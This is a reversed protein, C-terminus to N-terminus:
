TGPQSQWPRGISSCTSFFRPEFFCSLTWVPSACPTGRRIRRLENIDLFLFELPEANEAVPVVGVQGHVVLIFPNGGGLQGLEGIVAPEVPASLRHVPAGGANGGQGLGFNLVGIVGRRRDEDLEAELVINRGGDRRQGAFLRITTM